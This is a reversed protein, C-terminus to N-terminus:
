KTEFIFEIEVSANLPLINTGVAVRVHRGADGFLEILLESAGNAVQPQQTFCADSAVFAGVRVVGVLNALTGEAAKVGALANFVCQRAAQKADEISCAGPVSGTVLLKGAKTPLQGSVYILNGVRKAPVYAGFATGSQPLEVGMQLLNQELDMTREKVM